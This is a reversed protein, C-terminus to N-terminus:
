REDASINLQQSCDIKMLALQLWSIEQKEQDKNGQTKCNRRGKKELGILKIFIKLADTLM